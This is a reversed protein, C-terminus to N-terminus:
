AHSESPMLLQRIMRLLEDMDYPKKLLTTGEPLSEGSVALDESYGTCFIGPLRPELERMRAFAEFGTMRPMVADMVALAIEARHRGFMELAELGDEAAIVRFGSRKLFQMVMRRVAPEDEAVLIAGAAVVDAAVDAPLPEAPRKKVIPLYLSFTTGQGPESDVEVFGGHQQIIGYVVSLGLGTGGSDRRTTFFPEFVHSLTAKDMGSGTDSVRICVYRGPRGALPVPRGEGGIEVNEAEITIVGGEPMADRANLCLNLLVQGLRATDARVNGIDKPCHLRLEIAEGIVRRIMRGIDSGWVCLDTDRMNLPQQRSFALLQQSLEGGRDAAALIEEVIEEREAAELGTDKLMRAFGAIAQLVNSFDHAVGGALQGVVEMKQAQRLQEELRLRESMDRAIGIISVVKGDVKLPTMSFELARNPGFEEALRLRFPPPKAGEVIERFIQLAFPRDDPHVMPTFERGIWEGKKAGTMARAAQNAWLLVGNTGVGFIADRAEDILLRYRAESDRLADAARRREIAHALLNAVTNLYEQDGGTFVRRRRTQVLLVALAQERGPVVVSLSSVVGHESMFAPVTIRHDTSVDESVFPEPSRMTRQLLSHPDGGFVAEGRSLGAYGVFASVSFAEQRPLPELIAAFEADLTESVSEVAEEFVAELDDSVLADLGLRAISAQQEARAELASEAQKRRTIDVLLGRLKRPRHAESVVRVIDRVWVVRGDAAIMRYEFEFSEKEAACAASFAVAWERDDPHVHEAWFGPETLWKEMPYGLLREAQNSVYTFNLTDADAEWVVGDVSNVLETFQRQSRQLEDEARRQQERIAAERIEREVAPVLRALRDKLVFDSAGAKLLTVASEEGISGSVCIFPVDLGMERVIELAQPAGFGPIVYDALVVDWIRERLARRMAEATEVRLAEVEYGGRLLEREILKADSESDEVILAAIATRPEHELM